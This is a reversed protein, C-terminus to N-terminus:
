TREPSKAANDIYLTPGRKGRELALRVYKTLERPDASWETLLQPHILGLHSTGIRSLWYPPRIWEQAALDLYRLESAEFKPFGLRPLAAIMRLATTSWMADSPGASYPFTKTVGPLVLTFEFPQVRPGPVRDVGSELESWSNAFRDSIEGAAATPFLTESLQLVLASLSSKSFPVCQFLELPTQAVDRVRLDILVPALPRATGLVRFTAGLQFHLLSARVDSKFVCLLAADIGRTVEVVAETWHNESSDESLLRLEVDPLLRSFWSGFVRACTSGHNGTGLIALCPM